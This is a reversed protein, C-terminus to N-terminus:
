KAQEDVEITVRLVKDMMSLLPLAAQKYKLPVELKLQLGDSSVLVASKIDPFTALFVIPEQKSM